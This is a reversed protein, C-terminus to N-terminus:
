SRATARRPAARVVPPLDVRSYTDVFYKGDPSFTVTHNGDGDTLPSSAPATSTSATTTSCFYPDKGPNMGGASFWIQRKEEDVQDVGRVVWDGKTIQNKVAGTAGDYLYLHNWGDRESMWIIEKGDDVDYRYRQGLRDANRPRPLLLVDQSEGHDRRAGDGTAADVEIVPLGPPRAPQVRLHLRPQGEAVRAASPRLPEPLARQRRATQKRSAVDFLVPQELDLVDGPKAYFSSSTKPQLQDEPSSEVYHVM